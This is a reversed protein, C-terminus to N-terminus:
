KVNNFVIFFYDSDLLNNKDVEIKINNTNSLDLNIRKNNNLSIVSEFAVKDDLYITVKVESDKEEYNNGYYETYFELEVSNMNNKFDIKTPTLGPFIHITNSNYFRVLGTKEGLTIKSSVISKHFKNYEDKWSPYFKVFQDFHGELDIFSYFENKKYIYANVEGDLEYPGLILEYYKGINQKEIINNNLLTVVKQKEYNSDAQPIDTVVLYDSLLANLNMGDRSDIVGGYLISEKVINNGLTEVLSDSIITSSAVVSFKTNKNNNRDIELVNALDEEMKYFNDLNKYELRNFTLRQTLIPVVIRDDVFTKYFNLVSVLVIFFLFASKTYKSKLCSKIQFIGNVFLVLLWISIGLYHHMGMMQVRTFLFVFVILNLGCLTVIKQNRKKIFTLVIGIILIVIVYTGLRDIFEEIHKAFPFQYSNYNNSYNENIIKKILPFQLLLSSMLTTVGMVLYNLAANRFKEMDKFHKKIWYYLDIIFLSVYFAIVAYIMWRRFLFPIYLLFGILISYYWNKEDFRTKKDTLFLAVVIPILTVIDPLGRLTPVWFVTFTSIISIIMIKIILNDNVKDKYNKLIFNYILLLTPILYLSVIGIIYSFRTDGLFKFFPIIFLVPFYNYDSNKISDILLFKGWSFDGLFADSLIRFRQFYGNFDYIYIPSESKVYKYVFIVIIFISLIIVGINCLKNLNKREIGKGM